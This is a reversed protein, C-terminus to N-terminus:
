ATRRRERSGPWTSEGLVLSLGLDDVLEGLDLFVDQEGGGIFVRRCVVLDFFGLLLPRFGLDDQWSRRVQLFYGLALAQAVLDSREKRAVLGLLVALDGICFDAHRPQAAAALEGVLKEIGLSTEVLGLFQGVDEARPEESALDLVNRRM